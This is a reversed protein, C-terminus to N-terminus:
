EPTGTYNTGVFAISKFKTPNKTVIWDIYTMIAWAVLQYGLTTFHFGLRYNTNWTGNVAPFYNYLDIVFVNEFLNPMERIIENYEEANSRMGNFLTCVFIYAKPQVSKLRQIIGGYYGAFTAANNEYNSLDIDTQANGVPYKLQEADNTGLNIIYADKLNTSAGEWCREPKTTSEIWGKTTQGGYSFNYGDTGCARCIMQGWSWDYFDVYKPESGEYCNHEGSGLSDAIFGWNLFLSAFGPEKRIVSLPNEGVNFLKNIPDVSCLKEIDNIRKKLLSFSVFSEGNIIGNYALYMAESPIDSASVEFLSILKDGEDGTGLYKIVKLNEDLLYAPYYQYVTHCRVNTISFGDKKANDPLLIYSSCAWDSAASVKTLSGSQYQYAQANFVCDDESQLQYLSSKIKEDQVEQVEQNEKAIDFLEKVGINYGALVNLRFTDPSVNAFGWEVYNIQKDIVKVLTVINSNEFNLHLSYDKTGDTYHVISNVLENIIKDTFAIIVLSDGASISKLADANITLLGDTMGENFQKEVNILSELELETLKKDQIKKLSTDKVDTGIWSGIPHEAIFEKLYGDKIVIDGIHYEKADSFEEYDDFGVNKTVAKQSIAVTQSNGLSDEVNETAIYDLDNWANIGDGLKRLKTDDEIGEEGQMLIPNVRAWNEKTDHRFIIRDAM